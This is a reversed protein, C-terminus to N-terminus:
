ARAVAHKGEIIHTVTEDIAERWRSRWDQDPSISGHVIAQIAAECVQLADADDRVGFQHVVDIPRLIAPSPGEGRGMQDPDPLPKEPDLAAIMLEHTAGPRRVEAPRVGDIPRLHVVGVIYWAWLPHAHPARVLWYDVTGDADPRGRQGVPPLAVRWASAFAGEIDAPKSPPTSM